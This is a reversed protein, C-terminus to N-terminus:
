YPFTVKEEIYLLNKQLRLYGVGCCSTVKKALIHQLNIIKLLMCIGLIISINLIGLLFERKILIVMNPINNYVNLSVVQFGTNEM